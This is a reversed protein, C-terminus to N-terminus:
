VFCLVCCVDCVACVDMRQCQNAVGLRASKVTEFELRFHRYLSARVIVLSQLGQNIKIRLVMMRTFQQAAAAFASCECRMELRFTLCPVGPNCSGYQAQVFEESGRPATSVSRAQPTELRRWWPVSPSVVVWPRDQCPPRLLPPLRGHPQRFFRNSSSAGFHCRSHSNASGRLFHRTGTKLPSCSAHGAVNSSLLQARTSTDKCM